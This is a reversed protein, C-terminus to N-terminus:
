GDKPMGYTSGSFRFPHSIMLNWTWGILQSLGGVSIISGCGHSFVWISGARLGIFAGFQQLGQHAKGLYFRVNMHGMEDCEWVNTCGRYCAFLDSM